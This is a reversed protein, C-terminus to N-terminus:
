GIEPSDTLSALPPFRNSPAVHDTCSAATWVVGVPCHVVGVPCHVSTARTHARVDMHVCACRGAARESGIGAVRGAATSAGDMGVGVGAGVGVGVGVYGGGAVVWSGVGCKCAGRPPGGTLVAHMCAVARAAPVPAADCASVTEFVIETWKLCRTAAPRANSSCCVTSLTRVPPGAALVAADCHCLPPLPASHRRRHGVDGIGM